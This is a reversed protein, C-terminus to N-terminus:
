RRDRPIPSTRQEALPTMLPGGPGSNGQDLPVTWVRARGHAPYGTRTVEREPQCLACTLRVGDKPCWHAHKRSAWGLATGALLGVLGTAILGLVGEGAKKIEGRSRESVGGYTRHHLMM